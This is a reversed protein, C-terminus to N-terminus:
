IEELMMACAGTEVVMQHLGKHQHKRVLVKHLPLGTVVFPCSVPCIRLSCVQLRVRLSATNPLCLTSRMGMKNAHGAM